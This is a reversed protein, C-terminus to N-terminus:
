ATSHGLNLQLPRHACAHFTMQEVSQNNESFLIPPAGTSAPLSSSLIPTHVERGVEKPPRKCFFSFSDPMSGKSEQRTASASKFRVSRASFHQADENFATFVQSCSLEADYCACTPFPRDSPSQATVSQSIQRLAFWITFWLKHSLDHNM